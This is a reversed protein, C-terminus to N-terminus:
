GTVTKDALAAGDNSVDMGRAIDGYYISRSWRIYTEPLGANIAPREDILRQFRDLKAELAAIREDRLALAQAVAPHYNAPCMPSHMAKGTARDVCAECVRSVNFCPLLREAEALVSDM